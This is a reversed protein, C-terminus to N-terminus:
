RRIRIGCSWGRPLGTRPKARRFLRPTGGDIVAVSLSASLIPAFVSTPSGFVHLTARIYMVLRGAEGPIAFPVNLQRLVLVCPRNDLCPFPFYRTHGHFAQDSHTSCHVMWAAFYTTCAPQLAQPWGIGDTILGCGKGKLCTLIGTQLQQNRRMLCLSPFFLM